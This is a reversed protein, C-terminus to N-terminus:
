KIQEGYAIEKLLRLLESRSMLAYNEINAEKALERLETMTLKDMPPLQQNAYREAIIPHQQRPIIHEYHFIEELEEIPKGRLDEFTWGLNELATIINLRRQPLDEIESETPPAFPSLPSELHYSSRPRTIRSARSPQPTPLRLPPQNYHVLDELEGLPQDDLESRSWGMAELIRVLDERYRAMNEPTVHKPFELPHYQQFEKELESKTDRSYGRAGREKLDEKLTPRTPGESLRPDSSRLILGPALIGLTPTLHRPVPAYEQSPTDEILPYETEPTIDHPPAPYEPPVSPVSELMDILEDRRKGSYGRVGREKLIDRLQSVTYHSYEM